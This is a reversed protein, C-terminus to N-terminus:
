RPAVSITTALPHFYDRKITKIPSGGAPYTWYYVAPGERDAWAGIVTGGHIWWNEVNPEPSLYTEGVSTGQSGSIVFRYIIETPENGVTIYQGDWQVPGPAEFSENLLIAEVQSGNKPLEAFEFGSGDGSPTGDVFLNGANDYGCYLPVMQTQYVTPGSKAHSYVAIVGDSSALNFLVALNGTTPDSACDYSAYNKYSFTNIQQTGGHAYESVIGPYGSNIRNTIFVNGNKDSCEREPLAKGFNLVGVPRGGPYSYVYVKPHSFQPATVYLLDESKAEPLMWSGGRDARAPIPPQMDDQGQSLSLPPAGCAALFAAAACSGLACPFDRTM